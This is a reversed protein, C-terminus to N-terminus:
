STALRGVLGGRWVWVVGNLSSGALKVDVVLSVEDSTFLFPRLQLSLGESEFM